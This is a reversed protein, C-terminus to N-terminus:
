RSKKFMKFTKMSKLNRPQYTVFMRRYILKQTQESSKNPNRICTKKKNKCKNPKKIPKKVPKRPEDRIETTYVGGFKNLKHKPVVNM